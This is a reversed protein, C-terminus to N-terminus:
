ELRNNLKKLSAGILVVAMSALIVIEKWAYIMPLGQIMLKRVATIYWRAPLICSIGRLPWPMSEIPFVMGSLLMTPMMLLLGSFMLAIVQQHAMTSILLDLSLNAIIYILSVLWLAALSGAVPVGLVFVSLLLITALNICSLVFYPVMKSVVIYIPRVPSVLLVEMTGTEKERVISISTMMACILMLILGMVGPVFNYASQMGPNYLLKIQPIIQIPSQQQMIRSQQYDAIINSAYSTLITANNPDTADAILQVRAKGTHRLNNDFGAEFVIILDSSSKRLTEEIENNDYLIKNVNFYDSADLKDIIQRTSVDKSFDLVAVKVNKVETTIAFGFLIIQVIPMGLLILMTRRDRFIHFFEKRIFSIFQKM